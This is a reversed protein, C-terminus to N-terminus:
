HVWRKDEHITNLIISRSITQRGNRKDINEKTNGHSTKLKRYPFTGLIIKYSNSEEFGRIDTTQWLRITYSGIKHM